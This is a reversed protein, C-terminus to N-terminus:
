RGHSIIGVSKAIAKATIPHDGTVMVVRIGAKRCKKVAARVGVRPPDVMSVIGAFELNSTPFNISETNFKFGLPYQDVPLLLYALGLVREGMGGLTKYCENFNDSFSKDVNESKTIDPDLRYRACRELVREPAGKLVILHRRNEIDEHISLHFKNSSNFPIEAVRPFIKRVKAVSLESINEMFKLIASESADGITVRKHIPLHEQNPKFEAKSCLSLVLAIFDLVKTPYHFEFKQRALNDAEVIKGSVWLHSVTMRNQTLTGTKDSCITSTSGLTEVAELNKVLCHKEAMRRATLTLCVTLTALLGEPVNAVIIGIFFVVANILKYGILLSIVFFLTGFFVAMYTILRIFHGIEKAIPTQGQSLNATLNAIKGMVTHDGTLVVVGRAWGEVCNTSFFAM